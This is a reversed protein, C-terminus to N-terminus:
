FVNKKWFTFIAVNIRWGTWCASESVHNLVVTYGFTKLWSRISNLASFMQFIISVQSTQEDPTSPMSKNWEVVKLAASKYVKMFVGSTQVTEYYLFNYHVRLKCCRIRALRVHRVKYIFTIWCEFLISATSFQCYFFISSFVKIAIKRRYSLKHPVLSLFAVLSILFSPLKILM